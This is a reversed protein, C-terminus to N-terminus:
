EKKHSFSKFAHFTITKYFFVSNKSVIIRISRITNIINRVPKYNYSKNYKKLNIPNTIIINIIKILNGVNIHNRINITLKIKEIFRINRKRKTKLYPKYKSAHLL